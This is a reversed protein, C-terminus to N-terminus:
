LSSKNPQQMVVIYKQLLEESGKRLAPTCVPSVSSNSCRKEKFYLVKINIFVSSLLTLKSNYISSFCTSKDVM